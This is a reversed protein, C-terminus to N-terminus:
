YSLPDTMPLLPIWQQFAELIAETRNKWLHHDAVIQQGRLVSEVRWEEDQLARQIQQQLEAWSNQHHYLVGDNTGFTEQLYPTIATAAMAGHSLAAFIREHAGDRISECNNLIVKTQQMRELINPYPMEPYITVHPCTDGLISSWDGAGFLDIPIDALGQLMAFRGRGKVYLDLQQRLTNLFDEIAPHSLPYDLKEAIHKDLTSPLDAHADNLLEEAAEEMANYVQPPLQERWESSYRRYDIASSLMACQYPREIAPSAHYANDIAHPTDFVRLCGQNAAFQRHHRDIFGLIAYDSPTNSFHYYADVLWFFTPIRLVDCFLPRNGNTFLSNFVILGQLQQAELQQQFHQMSNSDVNILSVELEPYSTLAQYLQQSFNHLVNYRSQKFTIVGLRKITTRKM